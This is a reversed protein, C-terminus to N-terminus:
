HGNHLAESNQEAVSSHSGNARDRARKAKKLDKQILRRATELNDRMQNIQRLPDLKHLMATAYIDDITFGHKALRAEIRQKAKPTGAFYERALGSSDAENLGTEKLHIKLANRFGFEVAGKGCRQLREEEWRKNIVDDAMVKEFFDKPKVQDYVAQQLKKYREHDEGALLAPKGFLDQHDDCM